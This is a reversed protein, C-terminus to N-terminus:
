LGLEDELVLGRLFRDEKMFPMLEEKTYLTPLVRKLRDNYAAKVVYGITHRKILGTLCVREYVEENKCKLLSAMAEALPMTRKIVVPTFPQDDLEKPFFGEVILQELLYPRNIASGCLESAKHPFKKVTDKLVSDRVDVMRRGSFPPLNLGSIMLANLFLPKPEFGRVSFLWDCSRLKGDKFPDRYLLYEAAMLDSIYAGHIQRLCNPDREFLRHVLDPYDSTFSVGLDKCLNRTLNAGAILWDETLQSPPLSLFMQLNQPGQEPLNDDTPVPAKAKSAEYAIAQAYCDGMSRLEPAATFFREMRQAAKLVKKRNEYYELIWNM